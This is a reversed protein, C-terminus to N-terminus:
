CVFVVDGWALFRDEVLVKTTDNLVLGKNNWM